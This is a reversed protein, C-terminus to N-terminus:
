EFFKEIKGLYCKQPFGRCDARYRQRRGLPSKGQEFYVNKIVLLLTMLMNIVDTPFEPEERPETGLVETWDILSLDERGDRNGEM